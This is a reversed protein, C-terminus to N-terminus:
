PWHIFARSRRRLTSLFSSKKLHAEVICSNFISVYQCAENACAPAAAPPPRLRASRRRRAWARRGASTSTDTQGGQVEWASATSQLYHLSPSISEARAAALRRRALVASVRLPVVAVPRRGDGPRREGHEHVLDRRAYHEIAWSISPERNLFGNFCCRRKEFTVYCLM